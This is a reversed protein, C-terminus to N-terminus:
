MAVCIQPTGDKGKDSYVIYLFETHRLTAGGARIADGRGSSTCM